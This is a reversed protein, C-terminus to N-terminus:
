EGRTDTKRQLRTKMIIKNSERDRLWVENGVTLYENKSDDSPLDFWLVGSTNIQEFISINFANELIAILEGTNSRIEIQVRSSYVFRPHTEPPLEVIPIGYSRVLAEIPSVFSIAMRIGQGSGLEVLSGSIPKVFAECYLTGKILITSSSTCPGVWSTVICSDSTIGTSTTGTIPSVYSSVTRTGVNKGTVISSNILRVFSSVERTEKVDSYSEEEGFTILNTVSDTFSYARLKIWDISRDIRSISAMHLMGRAVDQGYSLNFGGMHTSRYSSSVGIASGTYEKFGQSKSYTYVKVYQNPKFIGAIYVREGIPVPGFPTENIIYGSDDPKRVFFYGKGENQIGISWSGGQEFANGKAIPFCYRPHGSEWPAPYSNLTIVVEVTMTGTLNHWRENIINAYSSIGEGFGRIYYLSEEFPYSYGQNLALGGGLIPDSSRYPPQHIGLKTLYGIFGTTDLTSDYTVHEDGRNLSDPYYFALRFNDDPTQAIEPYNIPGNLISDSYYVYFNNVGGSKITPHFVIEWSKYNMGYAEATYPLLTWQAWIPENDLDAVVFSNCLGGPDHGIREYIPYGAPNSPTPISPLIPLRLSIGNITSSTGIDQVRVLRRWRYEPFGWNSPPPDPPPPEPDGTGEEKEEVSSFSVLNGLESNALTKITNDSLISTYLRIAYCDINGAYTISQQGEQAVAWAIHLHNNGINGWTFSSDEVEFGNVFLKSQGTSKNITLVLHTLEESCEPSDNTDWSKNGLGYAWTTPRGYIALYFRSSTTESQGFVMQENWEDNNLMYPSIVAEITLTQALNISANLSLPLACYAGKTYRVFPRGGRLVDVLKSISGLTDDIIGDNSSEINIADPITNNTTYGHYACIASLGSWVADGINSTGSINIDPNSPAESDYYLCLHTDTNAYIQPVRIYLHAVKNSHDWQVVETKLSSGNLDTVKLRNWSSGITEFIHQHNLSKLYVAIVTNQSSGGTNQPNITVIQRYDYGEVWEIEDHEPPEPEEGAAIEDWFYKEMLHTYFEQQYNTDHEYNGPNNRFNSAFTSSYGFKSNLYTIFSISTTMKDPEDSGLLCHLIEHWIRLGFDFPTDLNPYYMVSAYRLTPWALGAAGQTPYTPNTNVFLTVHEPSSPVPWYGYPSVNQRLHATSEPDIIWKLVNPVGAASRSQDVLNQTIVDSDISIMTWTPIWAKTDESEGPEDPPAPDDSIVVVNSLTVRGEAGDTVTVGGSGIALTKSVTTWNKVTVNQTGYGTIKIPHQNDSVVLGPGFVTNVSGHIQIATISNKTEIRSFSVTSNWFVGDRTHGLYSGVGNLGAPNILECNEIKFRDAKDYQFGYCRSDISKCRILEMVYGNPTSGQRCPDGFFSAPQIWTFGSRGKGCDKDTCDILQAGNTIWFGCRSNGESYCREFRGQTRPAYYGSGFFDLDGWPKPLGSPYNPKVGNGISICDEFVCNTKTPEFEMHFGSEWNGEAYCEKVYLGDIDNTEAFDFGCEWNNFRQAGSTIIGCRVAKCKIYRINKHVRGGPNPNSPKTWWNHIFGYTECDIVECENWEINQLPYSPTSHIPDNDSLTHFVMNIAATGRGGLRRMTCHSAMCIFVGKWNQRTYNYGNVFFDEATIYEYKIRVHTNNLNLITKTKGEGKFTTRGKPHIENQSDGNKNIFSSITYTGEYLLLVDGSNMSDIADQITRGVNTTGCKFNATNRKATPTNSAAVTITAM